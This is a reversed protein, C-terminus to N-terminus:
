LNHMIHNQWNEIYWDQNLLDDIQVSHGGARFIAALSDSHMRGCIVLIHGSDRAEAIVRNAMYEERQRNGKTKEIESLATDENYGAPIKRLMREDPTMEINSYRCAEEKCVMEAISEEQHNAEEGVFEIVCTQITERVLQAFRAKQYQAFECARKDSSWFPRQIQHSLGIILIHM